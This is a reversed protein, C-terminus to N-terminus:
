NHILRPKIKKNCKELYEVIDQFVGKFSSHFKQKYYVNWNEGDESKAYYYDADDYPRAKFPYYWKGNNRLIYGKYETM